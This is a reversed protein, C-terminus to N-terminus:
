GSLTDLVGDIFRLSSCVSELRFALLTREAPRDPDAEDLQSEFCGALPVLLARQALLLPECDLGARQVLVLKLLFSLRLERVHEVPAALWRRLERRGGATAAYIVRHPGRGGREIGTAEVLRGRELRELAHYVVPRSLTRISGLESGPAFQSALAWGHTPQEAVLALVAWENSSLAGM